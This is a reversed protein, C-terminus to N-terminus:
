RAAELAIAAERLQPASTEDPAGADDIIEALRAVTAERIEDVPLRLEVVDEM